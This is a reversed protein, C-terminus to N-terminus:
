CAHACQSDRTGLGSDRTRLVPDRTGPGPTASAAAIMSMGRAETFGTLGILCHMRLSAGGGPVPDRTGPGSGVWGM